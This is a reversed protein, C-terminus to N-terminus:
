RCDLTEIEGGVSTVGQFVQTVTAKRQTLDVAAIWVKNIDNTWLLFVADKTQRVVAGVFEVAQEVGDEHKTISRVIPKPTNLGSFVKDRLYTGKVKRDKTAIIFPTSSDESILHGKQGTWRKEIFGYDRSANANSICTLTTPLEQGSATLSNTLLGGLFGALVTLGLTLSFQKKTM